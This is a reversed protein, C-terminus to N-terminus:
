SGCGVTVIADTGQIPVPGNIPLGAFIQGTLTATTDGCQIGTAQTRVPSRLGSVSPGDETERRGDEQHDRKQVALASVEVSSTVVITGAFEEIGAVASFLDTSM